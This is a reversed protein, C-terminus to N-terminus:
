PSSARASKLSPINLKRRFRKKFERHILKDRELERLQQTLVGRSVDPILRQLEGFRRTKQAVIWLITLKWKGM